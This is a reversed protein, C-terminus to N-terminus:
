FEDSLRPPVDVLVIDVSGEALHVTLLRRPKLACPAARKCMLRPQTAAGWHANRVSSNPRATPTPARIDAAFDAITCDTEHGVGSVVLVASELEAEIAQHIIQRAGQQIL